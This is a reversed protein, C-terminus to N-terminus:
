LINHLFIIKREKDSKMQSFKVTSAKQQKFLVNSYQLHDTTCLCRCLSLSYKNQFNNFYTDQRTKIKEREENLNERGFSILWLVRLKENQRDRKRTLTRACVEYFNERLEDRLMEIVLPFDRKKIYKWFTMFICKQINDEVGAQALGQFSSEDQPLKWEKCKELLSISASVLFILCYGSQQAENQLLCKVWCSWHHTQKFILIM